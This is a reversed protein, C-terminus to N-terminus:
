TFGVEQLNCVTQSVTRTLPNATVNCLLAVKTFPSAVGLINLRAGIAITLQLPVTGGRIDALMIAGAEGGLPFGRVKLSAPVSTNSQPPQSFPPISSNGIAVGSYAISINLYKYELGVRNPNHAVITFNVDANLGLRGNMASTANALGRILSAATVDVPARATSNADTLQEVTLRSVVVEEIAYEPVQPKYVFYLALSTVGLAVLLVLALSLVGCLITGCTCRSHSSTNKLTM